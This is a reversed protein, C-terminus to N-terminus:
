RVRVRQVKRSGSPPEKIRLGAGQCRLLVPPEKSETLFQRHNIGVLYGSSMANNLIGPQTFKWNPLFTLLHLCASTVLNRSMTTFITLRQFFFSFSFYVRPTVAPLNRPFQDAVAAAARLPPRELRRKERTDDSSEDGRKRTQRASQRRERERKRHTESTANKGFESDDSSQQAGV